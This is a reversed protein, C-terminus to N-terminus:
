RSRRGAHGLLKQGVSGEQERSKAVREFALCDCFDPLCSEAEVVVADKGEEAFLRSLRLRRDGVRELEVAALQDPDEVRELLTSQDLALPVRVVPAPVHDTERGLSSALQNAQARDDRAQLLLQQGREVGLAALRQ